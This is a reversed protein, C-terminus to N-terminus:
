LFTHAKVCWLSRTNGPGLVLMAKAKEEKKDEEKDKNKDEM